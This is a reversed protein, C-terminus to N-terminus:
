EATVIFDMMKMAHKLAKNMPRDLTVHVGFSVFLEKISCSVRPAFKHKYRFRELTTKFRRVIKSYENPLKAGILKQWDEITMSAKEYAPRRFRVEFFYVNDYMRRFYRNYKRQAM